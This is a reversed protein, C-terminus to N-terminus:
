RSARVRPRHRYALPGPQHARGAFSRVDSHDVRSKDQEARALQRFQEQHVRAEDPQKLAVCVRALGYHAEASTPLIALANLFSRKAKEQQDLQQLAQGLLLYGQELKATAEDVSTAEEPERPTAGGPAPTPVTPLAADLTRVVDELKGQRLLNEALRVRADLLDPQLELAKGFTEDAEDLQGKMVYTQGMSNYLDARNPNLQQCQQWQDLAKDFSGQEQHVLGLLYCANHDNPYARVLRLIEDLQEQRMAKERQEDSLTEPATSEAASTEPQQAAPDDMASLDSTTPTQPVSATPMSGRHARYWSALIM